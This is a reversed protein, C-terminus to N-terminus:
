LSIIKQNFGSAYMNLKDETSMKFDLLQSSPVIIQARKTFHTYNTRSKLISSVLLLLFDKINKIERYEDTQTDLTEIVLVDTPKRHLFPIGPIKEVTGGDIYQMSNYCVASFLLPICCSMAVADLASMDPHTHKSFYVTKSTNMCYSSVYLTKKLDKFTPDWGIVSQLIQKVLNVDTMGFNSFLSKINFGTLVQGTDIMLSKDLIEKTSMGLSLFLGLMSGASAGSIETFQEIDIEPKSLYGLMTFYGMACPGLVLYKM